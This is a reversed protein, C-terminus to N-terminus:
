ERKLSVMNEKIEGDTFLVNAGGSRHSGEKDFILPENVAGYLDADRVYEYDPEKATGRHAGFPCNFVKESDVYGKTFILSLDSPLKGDNDLAYVRLALSIKQLNEVCRIQRAKNRVHRVFPSIGVAIIGILLVVVSVEVITFAKDRKNM